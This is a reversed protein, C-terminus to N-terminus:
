VDFRHCIGNYPCNRCIDLDDTQDFPLEPDFMKSLTRTLEQEFLAFDEISVPEKNLLKIPQNVDKLPYAGTLVQTTPDQNKLYVYSYWALQLATQKGAIDEFYNGFDTKSPIKIEGTKYDIIRITGDKEDLRDVVGSLKVYDTKGNVEVPFQASYGKQELALIKFPAEKQDRELVSELQKRIVEKVLINKGELSSTDPLYKQAIAENLANELNEKLADFDQEHFEHGKEDIHKQYLQHIAEHFISGLVDPEIEEKVEEKEELRAIYKFYFQLPCSLFTSVASPSLHKAGNGNISMLYRHLQTYVEAEKPIVIEKESYAQFPTGVLYHQLQINPNAPKLENELQLIFRSQEGADNGETETDYFLYVNQARQMLRYFYYAYLADDDEYTPLGAAKRLHYPIYSNSNQKAPFYGENMSLILVNDFDLNRTELVGMIQLGKLPEGSFPLSASAIVQKFLKWFTPVNLELEEERLVDELRNLQAYFQYLFEKEINVDTEASQLQEDIIALLGRFYPIIADVEKIPQFIKHFSGDQDGDQKQLEEFPIYIKNEKQIQQNYERIKEPDLAQIYPHQLVQVVNRFYFREHASSGGMYRQMDLLAELLSFISTNQLPFGMTVNVDKCREPLSHLVPFLLNEDPLIVATKEPRWEEMKQELIKGLAKAQGAKRSVGFLRVDKAQTTLNPEIWNDGPKPLTKFNARLFKGAEQHADNLYYPDVDWYVEAKGNEHFAQFLAKEAESLANFGGFILSTWSLEVENAKAEEALYRYAMGEYALGKTKLKERFAQYAKRNWEWIHLFNGPIQQDEQPANSWFQELLQMDFIGPDFRQELEKIDRINQFLQDGPVMYKDIEDFDRLLMQGWPYFADFSEESGLEQLVKYLEIILTLQDPIHFPVMKEIFERISFIDPMWVPQEIQKAMYNRFFLGARKNPFILALNALDSQHKNFLDQHIKELFTM